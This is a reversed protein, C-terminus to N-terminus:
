EAEPPPEDSAGTQVAPGDGVPTDPRSVPEIARHVGSVRSPTPRGPERDLQELQLALAENVRTTSDIRRVVASWWTRVCWAILDGAAELWRGICRGVGISVEPRLLITAFAVFAVGAPGWRQLDDITFPTTPEM